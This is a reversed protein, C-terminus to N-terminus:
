GEYRKTRGDEHLADGGGIGKAGGAGKPNKNATGEKGVPTKRSQHYQHTSTLSDVVAQVLSEHNDM